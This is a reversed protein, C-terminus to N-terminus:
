PSNLQWYCNCPLEGDEDVKNGYDEFWNGLPGGVGNEVWNLTQLLLDGDSHQDNILENMANQSTDGTVCPSEVIAGYDENPDAKLCLDTSADLYQYFGYGNIDYYDTRYFITATSSGTHLQAGNGEAEANNGTNANHLLYATGDPIAPAAPAQIRAQAPAASLGLVLAPAALLAALRLRRTM